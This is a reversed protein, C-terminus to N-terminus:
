VCLQNFERELIRLGEEGERGGKTEGHCNARPCSFLHTLSRGGEGDRERYTFPSEGGKRTHIERGGLCNARPCCFLHTLSHPKEGSGEREGKGM